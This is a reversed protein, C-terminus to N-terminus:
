RCDTCTSPGASSIPRIPMTSISAPERLERDPRSTLASRSTAHARHFGCRFGCRFGTRGFRAPFHGFAQMEVIDFAQAGHDTGAVAEQDQDLFLEAHTQTRGTPALDHNCGAVRLRTIIGLAHELPEIGAKRM